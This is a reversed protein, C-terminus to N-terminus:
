SRLGIVSRHTWAVVDLSDFCGLAAEKIRESAVTMDLQMRCQLLPHPRASKPRARLMAVERMSVFESPM